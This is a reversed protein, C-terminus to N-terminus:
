GIKTLHLNEILREFDILIYSAEAIIIEESIFDLKKINKDTIRKEANLPLNIIENVKDVLIGYFNNEFDGILIKSNENLNSSISELCYKLDIVEVLIDEFQFYFRSDKLLTEKKIHEIASVIIPTKQLEIAYINESAISFSIIDKIM